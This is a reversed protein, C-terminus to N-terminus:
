KPKARRNLSVLIVSPFVIFEPVCSDVNEPAHILLLTAANATLGRPDQGCLLLKAGVENDRIKGRACDEIDFTKEFVRTFSRGDNTSARTL